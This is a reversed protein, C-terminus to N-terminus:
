LQVIKEFKKFDLSATGILFGGLNSVSKLKKASVEDVSGGYLLTIQGDLGYKKALDLVFDFIKKIYENEPVKSTSIAWIPEYAIYLRFKDLNDLDKLSEFVPLLQEKLVSEVNKEKNDFEQEGVCLIPTIKCEQLRLVKQAIDDSSEAFLSRRESHGVICYACGIDALSKSPVQGTYAGIKNNSCDQAGIKVLSDGFGEALFGMEIFSPCLVIKKNGLKSLRILGDYNNECFDIAKNFSFGMKWNAVYLFM